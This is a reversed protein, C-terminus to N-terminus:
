LSPLKKHAKKASSSLCIKSFYLLVYWLNPKYPFVPEPNDRFLYRNERPCLLDEPILSLRYGRFATPRITKVYLRQSTCSNRKELSWQTFWVPEHPNWLSWDGLPKLTNNYSQLANTNHYQQKHAMLLKYQTTDHQMTTCEVMPVRESWLICFTWPQNCCLSFFFM